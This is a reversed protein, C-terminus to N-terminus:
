ATKSRLGYLGLRCRRFRLLGFRSEGTLATLPRQSAAVGQIPGIPGRVDKWGTSFTATRIGRGEPSIANRMARTDRLLVRRM